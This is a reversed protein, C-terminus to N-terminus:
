RTTNEQTFTTLPRDFFIFNAEMSSHVCVFPTIVEATNLLDNIFILTHLRLEGRLTVIYPFHACRKPLIKISSVSGSHLPDWHPHLKSPQRNFKASKSPQRNFKLAKSPQRNDLSSKKWSNFNMHVKKNRDICNIM